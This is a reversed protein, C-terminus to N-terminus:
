FWKFWDMILMRSEPVYGCKIMGVLKDSSDTDFLGYRSIYDVVMGYDVVVNDIMALMYLTYLVLASNIKNNYTVISIYVLIHLDIYDCYDIRYNYLRLLDKYTKKYPSTSVFNLLEEESYYELRELMNYTENSVEIYSLQDLLDKYMNIPMTHGEIINKTM